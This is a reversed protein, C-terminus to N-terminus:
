LPVAILVLTLTLFRITQSHSFIIQQASCYVEKTNGWQAKQLHPVGPKTPTYDVPFHWHQGLGVMGVGKIVRMVHILRVLKLQFDHWWPPEVKQQVMVFCFFPLDELSRRSLITMSDYKGRYAFFIPSWDQYLIWTDYGTYRSIEANMMCILTCTYWRVYIKIRPQRHQAWWRQQSELGLYSRSSHLYEWRLWSPLETM